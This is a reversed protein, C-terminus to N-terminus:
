VGEMIIKKIWKYYSLKFGYKACIVKKSEGNKFDELLQRWAPGSLKVKNKVRNLMKANHPNTMNM